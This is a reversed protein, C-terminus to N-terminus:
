GHKADLNLTARDQTNNLNRQAKQEVKVEVNVQDQVKVKESKKM